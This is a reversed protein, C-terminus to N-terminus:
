DFGHYEDVSYWAGTAVLPEVNNIGVGFALYIAVKNRINGKPELELLIVSFTFLQRILYKIGILAWRQNCLACGV